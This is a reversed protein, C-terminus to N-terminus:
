GIHINNDACYSKIYRDIYQIDEENLNFLETKGDLDTELFDKCQKDKFHQHLAKELKHSNQFGLVPSSIVCKFNFDKTNNLRAIRHKLNSTIGIKYIDDSNLVYVLTNELNKNTHCSCPSLGSLHNHPTQEVISNCTNCKMTVKTNTNYYKTSEYAYNNGHIARAEAVFEETTKRSLGSCRVCGYTSNLHVYPDVLIDGHENCTISVKTKNNVYVTNTYSFKDGFKQKSSAIFEETTKKRLGSCTLCSGKQLHNYAKVSLISNCTNCKVSIYSHATTYITNSYDFSEGYRSKCEAIFEETNYRHKGSCKPCNKGELLHAQTMWFSGHVACIVELKEKSKVATNKIFCYRDGTIPLIRKLFNGLKIHDPANSKIAGDVRYWSAPITINSKEICEECM